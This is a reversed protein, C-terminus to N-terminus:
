KKYSYYWKCFTNRWNYFRNKQNCRAHNPYYFLLKPRIIGYEVSFSINENGLIITYADSGDEGNEGKIKTWSYDQPNNSEEQSEMNYAIGIYIADTPDDTLNSGDSNQSYKVWTYKSDASIGDKGNQLILFDLENSSFVLIM